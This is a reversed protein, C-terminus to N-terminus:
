ILRSFGLVWKFNNITVLYIPFSIILNTEYLMIVIKRAIMFNTEVRVQESLEKPIPNNARHLFEFVLLVGSPSILLVFIISLLLVVRTAQTIKRTRESSYFKRNINTTLRIRHIIFLNLLLTLLEPVIAWLVTSINVMTPLSLERKCVEQEQEFDDKEFKDFTSYEEVGATKLKFTCWLLVVTILISLTCKAQRRTSLKNKRLPWTISVFRELALIVMIWVPVLLCVKYICIWNLKDLLM